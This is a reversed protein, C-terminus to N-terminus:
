RDYRWADALIGADYAEKIKSLMDIYSDANNRNISKLDIRGDAILATLSRREPGDHYLIRRAAEYALTDAAQLPVFERKTAFILRSFAEGGPGARVTEFAAIASDKFDNVEHIVSIPRPDSIKMRLDNIVSMLLWQFCVAYPDKHFKRLEPRAELLKEVETLKVAIAYGFAYKPIIPLLRKMLNDREDVTWGKFDGQLNACDTAHFINIGKPKLTRRWETTFKQWTLGRAMYGAVSVIPSGEHIGSEDVFLKIVAIPGERIQL